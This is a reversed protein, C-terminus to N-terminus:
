VREFVLGKDWHWKTVRSNQPSMFEALDGSDSTKTIVSGLAFKFFLLQYYM